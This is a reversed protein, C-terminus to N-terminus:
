KIRILTKKEKGAKGGAGGGGNISVVTRVEVHLELRCEGRQFDAVYQMTYQYEYQVVTNASSCVRVCACACVRVRARVCADLAATCFFKNSRHMVVFLPWVSVPIMPKLNKNSCSAAIPRASSAIATSSAM